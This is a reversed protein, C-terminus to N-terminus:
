SADNLMGPDPLCWTKKAALDRLEEAELLELNNLGALTIGLREEIERVFDHSNM